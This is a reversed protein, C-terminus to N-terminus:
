MRPSATKADAKPVSAETTAHVDKAKAAEFIKKATDVQKADDTHVSVLINGDKIKGEYIKAQIEPIGMGVLAGVLSGAAGGVAAGGLTAMVPGAAILMGLGPLAIMGIGALLGLAGGALAGIGTGVAAGEPAKTGEKHAFDRTAGKDPFLVSIDSSTFGAAQLSTVLSEAEPRTAVIGFVSKNGMSDESQPAVRETRRRM